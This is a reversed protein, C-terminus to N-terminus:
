ADDTVDELQSNTQRHLHLVEIILTVVFVGFFSGMFAAEHVPVFSLTLGVAALAVAMRVVLGGVTIALFRNRDRVRLAWRHTALSSAGYLVALGGGWAIGFWLGEM